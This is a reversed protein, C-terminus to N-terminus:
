VDLGYSRCLDALDANRGEGKAVFTWGAGERILECFVVSTQTSYDEDLKFNVLENGTVDDILTVFAHSVQGFYQNREAAEHITVAVVIKDINAAIKDFDVVIEEEISSADGGTRNDGTHTVSGDASILNNYFVFNTDPSVRGLSNLIFVSADLDFDQGTDATQWGLGIRARKLFPNRKKLDLKQGKVLNVM